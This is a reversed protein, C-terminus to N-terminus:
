IGASLLSFMAAASISAYSGSAERGAPQPPVASCVIHWGNEPRLFMKAKV